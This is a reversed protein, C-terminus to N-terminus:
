NVQYTQHAFTTASQVTIIKKRFPMQKYNICSHLLHKSFSVGSQFEDFTGDADHTSARDPDHDQVVAV